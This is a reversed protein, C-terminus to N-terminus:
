ETIEFIRFKKNTPFSKEMKVELTVKANYLKSEFVFKITKAVNDYWKKDKISIFCRLIKESKYYVYRYSTMIDSYQNNVESMVEFLMFSTLEIGNDLVISDLRRGKILSIVDSCDGYPCHKISKELVIIDGQNYRILPMAFNNLNTVVAEGEGCDNIEKENLCEVFVNDDFIHMFHCPSEYAIGNMEESGYMNVIPVNFFKEARRKLDPSLIEGVTEIYKLTLPISVDQEEYATMLKNLIYPQIYFWLPHFDNIIHLIKKYENDDNILSINVSLVNDPEIDYYVTEGDAFTDFANLTFIVYRNSPRIGYYKLRRRWLPLNSSYYDKYDWYVNVPIGSSGSSSQRRLQQYFYKSKYGESFMNYRNEQLEKRTLVPWQTIDLPNSIGYEKIRKKYFDNHESVYKLMQELKTMKVVQRPMAMVIANLKM